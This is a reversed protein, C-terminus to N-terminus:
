DFIQFKEHFEKWGVKEQGFLQRGPDNGLRLDSIASSINRWEILHGDRTLNRGTVYKELRDQLDISLGRAKETYLLELGTLEGFGALYKLEDKMKPSEYDNQVREIDEKM